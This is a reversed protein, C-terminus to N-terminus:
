NRTPGTKGSVGWGKYWTTKELLKREQRQDLTQHGQLFPNGGKKKLERLRTLWASIGGEIITKRFKLSYGSWILKKDYDNIVKSSETELLVDEIRLLRRVLDNSLWNIKNEDTTASMAPVVWKSKM